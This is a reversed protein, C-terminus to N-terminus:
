VNQSCMSIMVTLKNKSKEKVKSTFSEGLIFTLFTYYCLLLLACLMSRLNMGTAGKRLLSLGFEKFAVLLLYLFVHPRFAPPTCHGTRPVGRLGM